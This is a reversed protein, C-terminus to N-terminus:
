VHARGIEKELTSQISESSHYDIRVVEIPLYSNMSVAVVRKRMLSELFINQNDTRCPLM